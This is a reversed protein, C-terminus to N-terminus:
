AVLLSRDNKMDLKRHLLEVLELDVIRDMSEVALVLVLVADGVPHNVEVV